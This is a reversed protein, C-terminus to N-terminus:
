RKRGIKREKEREKKREREIEGDGRERKRECKGQSRVRETQHGRTGDLIAHRCVDNEEDNDRDVAM